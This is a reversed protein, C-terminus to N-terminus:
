TIAYRSITHEFDGFYNVINDEINFTVICSKDSTDSQDFGGIVYILNNWLVAGGRDIMAWNNVDCGPDTTELKEILGFWAENLLNSSTVDIRQIRDTDGQLIYRYIIIILM